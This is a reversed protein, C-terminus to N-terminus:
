FLCPILKHTQKQYSVYQSFKKKLLYEEYHLKILLTTFLLILLTFRFPTPETIVFPIMILLVALYMPHRIFHYPGCQVLLMDYSPDPIISIKDLHMTTVAWIAIIVGIGQVSLSILSVYWIKSSAVLAILTLFQVTVLTYSFIPHVLNTRM